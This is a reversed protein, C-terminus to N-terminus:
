EDEQATQAANARPVATGKEELHNKLSLLAKDWARDFYAYGKSTQKINIRYRPEECYNKDTLEEEGPM